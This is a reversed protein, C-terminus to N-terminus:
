DQLKQAMKGTRAPFLTLNTLIFNCYQRLLSSVLMVPSVAAGSRLFVFYIDLIQDPRCIQVLAACAYMERM